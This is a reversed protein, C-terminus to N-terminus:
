VQLLPSKQKLQLEGYRIETPLQTVVQGVFKVDFPVLQISRVCLLAVYVRFLVRDLEFINGSGKVIPAM